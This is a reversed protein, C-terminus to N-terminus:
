VRSRASLARAMMAVGGLILWSFPSFSGGNTARVAYTLVGGVVALGAGAYFGSTLAARGELRAAVPDDEAFNFGCDCLVASPPNILACKPCKKM